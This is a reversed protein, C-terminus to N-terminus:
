KKSPNVREKAASVEDQIRKLADKITPDELMALRQEDGAAELDKKGVLGPNVISQLRNYVFKNRNFRPKVNGKKDTRQADSLARDASEAETLYAGLFREMDPGAKFYKKGGEEFRLGNVFEYITLLPTLIARSLIGQSLTEELVENLRRGRSDTGLNASRLFNILEETLFSPEVFGQGGKREKGPVQVRKKRTGRATYNKALQKMRKNHASVMANLEKAGIQEGSPAKFHQGAKLTGVKRAIKVLDKTEEALTKLEERFEAPTLHLREKETAGTESMAPSTATAHTIRVEKRAKSM